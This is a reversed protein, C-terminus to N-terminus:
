SARRSKARHPQDVYPPHPPYLINQTCHGGVGSVSAMCQGYSTFSCAIVNSDYYNACWPLNYTAVATRPAFAATVLMFAVFASIRM